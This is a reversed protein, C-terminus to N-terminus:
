VSEEAESFFPKYVVVKQKSKGCCCCTCIFIGLVFIALGWILLADVDFKEVISNCDGDFDLLELFTPERITGDANICSIEKSVGGIIESGLEDFPRFAAQINKQTKPFYEMVM